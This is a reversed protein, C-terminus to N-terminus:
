KFSSDDDRQKSKDKRIKPLNNPVPFERKSRARSIIIRFLDIKFCNALKGTKIVEGM